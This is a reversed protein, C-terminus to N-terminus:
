RAGGGGGGSGGGVGGVGGSGSSSPASVSYARGFGDGFQAYSHHVYYFHSYKLQEEPVVLAMNKLVEEAVGLATAYVLYFDWLEISEPPHEKLASFDTLYRKFNNWRKNYLRGEPTWRGLVKEFLGSFIIMVLGFAGILIVLINMSLALPFADSPFFRPVAIFYIVAAIITVVGFISMYTNGTTRFLKEVEIHREVKKNWATIFDYFDTGKELEKKLKAWSIKNGSAHKKLLNFVDNEFDALKPLDREAKAYSEPSALEILIDEAESKFLGLARSDESKITRLSIYDLNALNMVTATFGDMTPAGIRGQMIANVVAPKSDTPPEREYIAEYDVKPERGYRLYIIFPFALAFVAFVIALNYLGKLIWGKMEYENEIVEIKELGAENDIQVLSSNPSEIRPFVVRVEYWQYSPIENTKLNLVNHELGAAQTYGTPHIWYQVESEDEVPLTISGDLSGLPKEWEEGWLKYHFESVDSHVKVAGYHDYSIFFTVKEPTPTPLSGILEYGESTPEVRFTCAEDSCHGTINQISEGPSVELVRFVESYDGDFTYSISEEVHVIGRSDITINTTAGELAYDKASASPILCLLVLLIVTIISIKLIASDTSVKRVPEISGKSFRM